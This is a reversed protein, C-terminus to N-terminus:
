KFQGLWTRFGGVDGGNTELELFEAMLGMVERVRGLGM